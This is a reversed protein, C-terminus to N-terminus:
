DTAEAQTGDLTGSDFESTGSQDFIQLRAMSLGSCDLQAKHKTKRNTVITFTYTNVTSDSEPDRPANNISAKDVSVESYSHASAFATVQAQVVNFQDQTVGQDVLASLGLISVSSGSGNFSEPTEPTSTISEGSYPDKYTTSKPGTATDKKPATVATLGVLLLVFVIVMGVLALQKKGKSLQAFRSQLQM